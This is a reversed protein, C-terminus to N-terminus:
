AYTEEIVSKVNNRINSLLEIVQYKDNEDSINEYLKNPVLSDNIYNLYLILKIHKKIVKNISLQSRKVLKIDNFFKTTCDYLEKITNNANYINGQLYSSINNLSDNNNIQIRDYNLTDMDTCNSISFQTIISSILLLVNRLLCKLKM